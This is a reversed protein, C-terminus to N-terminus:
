HPNMQGTPQQPRLSLLSCLCGSEPNENCGKSTGLAFVLLSLKEGQFFRLSVFYFISSAGRSSPGRPSTKRIRLEADKTGNSVKEQTPVEM